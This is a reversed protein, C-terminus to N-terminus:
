IKLGRYEAYVQMFSKGTIEFEKKIDTIRGRDRVLRFFYKNYNNRYVVAQTDFRYVCHKEGEPKIGFEAAYIGQTGVKPVKEVPLYTGVSTTAMVNFKSYLVADDMLLENHLRKIVTWDTLGEFGGFNVKETQKRLELIHQVPSMGFVAQSYYQQVIDWFRGLMDFCLWDKDTLRAKAARYDAILKEWDQTVQIIQLNPLEAGIEDLAKTTGDDPDLIVVQSNPYMIALDILSRTKSTNQEGSLLIKERM